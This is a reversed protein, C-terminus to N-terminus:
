RSTVNKLFYISSLKARGDPAHNWYSPWVTQSRNEYSVLVTKESWEM